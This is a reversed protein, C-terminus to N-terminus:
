VARALAAPDDVLWARIVAVGHALALADRASTADVGGLALVPARAGAALEAFRAAGLPAGKGPSSFLPGLTIADADRAAAVGAQDHCSRAVYRAGLLARADTLAISREALHVGDADAALAIDVRDHVVVRAGLPRAIAILARALALRVVAPADHDRVGFMVDEPAASAALVLTARRVIEDTSALGLETLLLLRPARVAVVEVGVDERGAEERRRGRM